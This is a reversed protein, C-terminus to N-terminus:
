PLPVLRNLEEFWNQVLVVQTVTEAGTDSATTPKLLLFRGDPGVDYSGQASQIRIYDSRFLERRTGIRIEGGETSVDVAMMVDDRVYFLETGDPSWIPSVGGGISVPVTPGPGPYAQVYVERRGSQNSRYALWAGDPSLRSTALFFESELWATPPQDGKLPMAWIERRGGGFSRHFLLTRGDPTMTTGFVGLAEFETGLRDVTGSGNALVSHLTYPGDVDWSFVLREGDPTWVQARATSQNTLRLSAGTRVEFVWLAGRDQETVQVALRSGDPSLRPQNYALAPLPLSEEQGDRDLWLMTSTLAGADAPGSIYVLSGNDSLDFSPSSRGSFRTMLGEVVPVPDSTVDLTDLDFGVARLTGAESYVVHGTPSYRPRAGDEIIVRYDGTDRDLVAIQETGVTASTDTTFLVARGGPLIDPWYHRGVDPTTIAEPAGGAAPVQLLGDSSATAFVIIDDAGWSAGVVDTPVDCITVPAGGAISVKLLATGNTFGVWNGDASVFPDGGGTAGRLPEGELQDLARVYLEGPEAQYVIRTGDPSIAVDGYCGTTFAGSDEVSAADQLQWGQTTEELPRISGAHETTAGHRPRARCQRRRTEARRRVKVM